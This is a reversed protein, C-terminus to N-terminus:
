KYPFLVERFTLSVRRHNVQEHNPINDPNMIPIGHEWHYRAEGQFILLSRPQLRIKVTERSKLQTWLMVCESKLSLTIITNGFCPICDIHSIIGQGPLYENVIVQDPVQAMLGDQFIRTAIGQLWDPLSGLYTSSAFSGKYYDYKYGYEQIRRQEKTSWLQQNIIELLQQEDNSNIYDPFYSLGPVRSLNFSLPTEIELDLEPNDSFNM